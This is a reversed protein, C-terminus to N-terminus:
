GSSALPPWSSWRLLRSWGDAGPQAPKREGAVADGAHRLDRDDPLHPWAPRRALRDPCACPQRRAGHRSRELSLRHVPPRAGMRRGRARLRSRFHAFAGAVVPSACACIWRGSVRGAGGAAGRGRAAAGLRIQRGRGSPGLRGVLPRRSFLWLGDVLRRRIRRQPFRGAATRVWSGAGRRDALRRHDVSRRDVSVAVLAAAGVGRGGGLRLRHRTQALGLVPHNGRDALGSWQGSAPDHFRCRELFRREKDTSDGHGVMARVGAHSLPSDAFAGRAVRLRSAQAPGGM